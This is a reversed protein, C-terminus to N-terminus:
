FDRRFSDRPRSVGHFIRAKGSIKTKIFRFELCKESKRTVSSLKEIDTTIEKQRSSTLYNKQNQWAIFATRDSFESNLRLIDHIKSTEAFYYHMLAFNDHIWFIGIAFFTWMGAIVRSIAFKKKKIIPSMVVYNRLLFFFYVVIVFLHFEFSVTALFWM